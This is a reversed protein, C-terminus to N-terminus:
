SVQESSQGCTVAFLAYFTQRTNVRSHKLLSFQGRSGERTMQNTDKSSGLKSSLLGCATASGLLCPRKCRFDHYGRQCVSDLGLYSRLGRWDRRQAILKTVNASHFSPLPRARSV